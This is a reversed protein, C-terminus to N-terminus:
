SGRRQELVVMESLTVALWKATYARQFEVRPRYGVAELLTELAAIRDRFGVRVAFRLSAKDPGCLMWADTRTLAHAWLSREGPDLQIEPAELALMARQADTVKCAPNALSARLAAENVTQETRRNQYGTQTEIMCDEVTEVSYGSALATWAGIRWCELIVNTDVLLTGRFRQM